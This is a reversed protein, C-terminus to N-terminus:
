SRNHLLLLLNTIDVITDDPPTECERGCAGLDDVLIFLVNPPGHEAISGATVVHLLSTFEM